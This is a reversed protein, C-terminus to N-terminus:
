SEGRHFKKKHVDRCTDCLKVGCVFPGMTEECDHTAQKGCYICILDHHEECYKSGQVTEKNCKGIWAKDFQCKSRNNATASAM